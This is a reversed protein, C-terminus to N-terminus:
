SETTGVSESHPNTGSAEVGVDGPGSQLELVAPSPTVEVSAAESSTGAQIEITTGHILRLRQYIESVRDLQDAIAPNAEILKAFQLHKALDPTDPNTFIREIEDNVVTVTQQRTQDARAASEAAKAAFEAAQANNKNSHSETALRALGVGKKLLRGTNGIWSFWGLFKQWRNSEDAKNPENPIGAFELISEEDSNWM